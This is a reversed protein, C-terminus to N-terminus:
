KTVKALKAAVKAAKATAKATAKAEAKAARAAAREAIQEQTLPTKVLGLAIQQEPSLLALAAEKKAKRIDPETLVTVSTVVLNNEEAHKDALEARMFVAPIPADAQNVVFVVTKQKPRAM